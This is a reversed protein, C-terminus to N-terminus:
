RGPQLVASKIIWTGVGGRLLALAGVIAIVLIVTLAAPGAATPGSRVEIADPTHLPTAGM